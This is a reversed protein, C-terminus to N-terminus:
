SVAPLETPAPPPHRPLLSIQFLLSLLFCPSSAERRARLAGADSKGTLRPVVTSHSPATRGRRTPSLSGPRWAPRVSAVPMLSPRATWPPRSSLGPARLLSVHPSIPRCSLLYKPVHNNWSDQSTM